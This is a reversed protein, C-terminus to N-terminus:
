TKGREYGLLIEKRVTGARYGGLTGDSRIVRHCPILYHVPNAAIAGAVARVADPRGISGAIQHYTAIRGEPIRLLARWVQIQFNTGRIALYIRSLDAESEDSAHKHETGDSRFIKRVIARAQFDDRVFRAGPLSKTLRERERELSPKDDIFAIMHIGRSTSAILADGFPTEAVGNHIEVSEGGSKFEGPSLAELSVFYDHLRSPASLGLDMSTDLISGGNLLHRARNVILEELYRKPTIGVWRRFLRNFHYPSLGSAAAIEDLDPQEMVRSRIYEIARAIREYDRHERHIGTSFDTRIRETQM